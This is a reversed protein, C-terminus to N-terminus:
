IHLVAPHLSGEPDKLVTNCTLSTLWSESNLFSIVRRAELWLVLSLQCTTPFFFIMNKVPSTIQWQGCPGYKVAKMQMHQSQSSCFRTNCLTNVSLLINRCSWWWKLLSKSVPHSSTGMMQTGMLQSDSFHSKKQKERKKEKEREKRKKKKKKQLFYNRLLTGVNEVSLWWVSTDALMEPQQGLLRLWSGHGSPTKCLHCLYVNLQKLRKINIGLYLFMRCEGWVVRKWSNSQSKM